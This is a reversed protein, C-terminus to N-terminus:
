QPRQPVARDSASTALAVLLDVVRRDVHAERHEVARQGLSPARQHHPRGRRPRQRGVGGAGDPRVDGVLQHSRPRRPRPRAARARRPGADLGHEALVGLHDLGSRSSSDAGVVGRGEVNTGAGVRVGVVAVDGGVEDRGGVPGPDHVQGRGETGVVHGDPRRSPQRDDVRDVRRANVVPGHSPSNTLSASRRDGASRSSRPSSSAASRCGCRGTRSASCAAASRSPWARRTCGCWRWARGAARWCRVISQCGSCM